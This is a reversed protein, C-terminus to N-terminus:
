RSYCRWHPLAHHQVVDECPSYSSLNGQAPKRSTCRRSTPPGMSLSSLTLVLALPAACQTITCRPMVQLFSSQWACAEQLHVPPQHTPGDVALEAAAGGDGTKQAARPHRGRPRAVRARHQRARVRVYGELTERAQHRLRQRPVM